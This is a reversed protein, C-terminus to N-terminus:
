GMGNGEHINEERGKQEFVGRIIGQLIESATLPDENADITLFKALAQEIEPPANPEQVLQLQMQAHKLREILNEGSGLAELANFSRHVLASHM